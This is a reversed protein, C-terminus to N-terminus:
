PCSLECSICSKKKWKHIWETIGTKVYKSDTFITLSKRKKFYELVKIVAILEMKNNTTQNSGGHLNIIEKNDIIVVGWGGVGPNGSCAGDTFVNITM